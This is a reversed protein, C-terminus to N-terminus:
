RGVGLGENLRKCEDFLTQKTKKGRNGQEKTREEKLVHAIKASVAHKLRGFDKMGLNLGSPVRQSPIVCYKKKKLTEGARKQQSNKKAPSWNGGCRKSGDWRSQEESPTEGDKQNKKNKKQPCPGVRKV